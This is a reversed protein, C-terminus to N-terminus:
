AQNNYISMKITMYSSLATLSWWMKIETILICPHWMEAYGWTMTMWSDNRLACLFHFTYTSSACLTDKENKLLIYGDILPGIKEVRQLFDTKRNWAKNSQIYEYRQLLPRGHFHDEGADRVVLRCSPEQEEKWLPCRCSMLVASSALASMSIRQNWVSGFGPSSWGVIRTSWRRSGGKSTRELSVPRTTGPHGPSHRWWPTEVDPSLFKSCTRDRVPHNPPPAPSHPEEVGPRVQVRLWTEEGLGSRWRHISARHKNYHLWNERSQGVSSWGRGSYTMRSM